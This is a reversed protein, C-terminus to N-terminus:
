IGCLRLPDVGGESIAVISVSLDCCTGCGNKGDMTGAETEAEDDLKERLLFNEDNEEVM